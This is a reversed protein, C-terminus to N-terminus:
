QFVGPTVNCQFGGRHAPVGGHRAPVGVDPYSRWVSVGMLLHSGWCWSPVGWVPSFTGHWAPFRSQSGGRQAPFGVRGLHSDRWWSPVGMGPHSGGVDACSRWVASPGGWHQALVRMITQSRGELLLDGWAASPGGPWSPVGGRWLSLAGWATVGGNPHSGWM